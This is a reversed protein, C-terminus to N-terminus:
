LRLNVLAPKCAGEQGCRWRNQERRVAPAGGWGGGDHGGNCFIEGIGHDNGGEGADCPVNADFDVDGEEEEELATAAEVEPGASECRPADDKLREENDETVKAYPLSRHRRDGEDIECPKDHDHGLAPHQIRSQM